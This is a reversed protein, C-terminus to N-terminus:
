NETSNTSPKSPIVTKEINLTFSNMEKQTISLHDFYAARADVTNGGNKLIDQMINQAEIFRIKTSNLQLEFLTRKDDDLNQLFKGLKTSDDFDRTVLPREDLSKMLSEYTTQRADRIKQQPIDLLKEEYKAQAANEQLKLYHQYLIVSIPDNSNQRLKSLDNVLEMSELQRDYKASKETHGAIELTTRAMGKKGDDNTALVHISYTRPKLKSVDIQKGFEGNGDTKLMYSEGAFTLKVDINSSPRYAHDVVTGILIPNKGENIPSKLFKVDVVFDWLKAEIDPISSSAFICVIALSTLIVPTKNM